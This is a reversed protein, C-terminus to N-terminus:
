HGPDSGSQCQPFSNFCLSRAFVFLNERQNRIHKSILCFEAPWRFSEVRHCTPTELTRLRELLPLEPPQTYPIGIECAAAFTLADLECQCGQRYPLYLLDCFFVEPGDILSQNQGA